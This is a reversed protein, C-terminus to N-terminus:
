KGLILHVFSKLFHEGGSSAFSEPHFQVGIHPLRRHEAVLCVGQESYLSHFLSQFVMDQAFCGLSNYLVFSRQFANQPLFRSLLPTHLHIQRGHEPISAIRQICGGHAHLMIQHGLCVGLFPMNEPLNLYFHVSHSYQSPHGPGASFVCAAYKKLNRIKPLDQHNVCDIKQFYSHFFNSLNNTFSDDHDILLLRM